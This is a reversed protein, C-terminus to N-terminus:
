CDGRDATTDCVGPGDNWTLSDRANGGFPRSVTVHTGAGSDEALWSRVEHTTGGVDRTFVYFPKPVPSRGGGPDAWWNEGQAKATDVHLCEYEAGEFTCTRVEAGGYRGVGDDAQVGELARLYTDECAGEDCAHWDTWSTARAAAPAAGGNVADCFKGVIYPAVMGAADQADIAGDAGNNAGLGASDLQWLGVGPNFFLGERGQPDYLGQQNDYRSLTMPSPAEPSGSAVEPWTPALTLATADAASIACAADSAAAGAADQVAKLPEAGFALPGADVPANEIKQQVVAPDTGDKAPSPSGGGTDAGAQPATVVLAASALVACLASLPTPLRRHTRRPAAGTNM